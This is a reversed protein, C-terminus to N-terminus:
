SALSTRAVWFGFDSMIIRLDRSGSALAILQCGRHEICRSIPAGQLATAAGGAASQRCNITNLVSPFTGDGPWMYIRPYTSSDIGPFQTQTAGTVGGAACVGVPSLSPSTPPEESSSFSSSSSVDCTPGGFSSVDCSPGGCCAHGNHIEIQKPRQIVIFCRLYPRREPMHM